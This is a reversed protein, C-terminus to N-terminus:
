IKDSRFPCFKLIEALNHSLLLTTTTTTIVIIIVVVVVVVVQEVEMASFCILVEKGAAM